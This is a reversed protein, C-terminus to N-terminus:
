AGRPGSEPAGMKKIADIVLAMRSGLSGKVMAVDGADLTRGAEAAMEVSNEFWHGRKARPLAEYLARMLPGCTHVTDIDAMEDVDAIGAHMAAEDPGLELM